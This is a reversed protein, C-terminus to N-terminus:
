PRFVRRYHDVYLAELQEESLARPTVLDAQGTALMREALAEFARAAASGPAREVVNQKELDALSIQEDRPITGVVRSGLASAFAEILEHEGNVGRENLIIGAVRGGGRRALNVVGTAINNAAYIALMEGSVVLYIETDRGLRIPVAFGGCVVDGLLDYLGLDFRSMLEPAQSLMDMMLSIARGACGMGPEPGGAEICHVGNRGPVVLTTLLSPDVRGHKLFTEMVTPVRTAVHRACSDHKPDCGVQLVRHGARQFLVALNSTVTSKGIGGKGCIVVNRM